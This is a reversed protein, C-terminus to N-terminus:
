YLHYAIYVDWLSFTGRRAGNHERADNEEEHVEDHLINLFIPLGVLSAAEFQM